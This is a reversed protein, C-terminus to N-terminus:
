TLLRALSSRFAEAIKDAQEATFADASARLVGNINGVTQWSFEWLAPFTAWHAPIPLPTTKTGPLHLRPAENDINVLHLLPATGPTRRMRAAKLIRSFPLHKHTLADQIATAHTQVVAEAPQSASWSTRVPLTNLMPGMIEQQHHTDRLAAPLGVVSELTTDGLAVASSVASFLVAAPSVRAARALRKTGQTAAADLHLEVPIFLGSDAASPADNRPLAQPQLDRLTASWWEADCTAAQEESAYTFFDPPPGMYDPVAGRLFAAYVSGLERTLLSLAWSDGAVHHVCLVFYHETNSESLLMARVPIQARLDFPKQWFRIIVAARADNAALCEARTLETLPGDLDMPVATQDHYTSHLAPHRRVVHDLAQELVDPTVEGTIKFGLPMNYLPRNVLAEHVLMSQQMDSLLRPEM